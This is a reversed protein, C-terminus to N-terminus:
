QAYGVAFADYAADGGRADARLPDGDALRRGNAANADVRAATENREVAGRFSDELSSVAEEDIGSARAVGALVMMVDEARATIETELFHLERELPDQPIVLGILRQRREWDARQAPNQVTIGELLCLRILANVFAVGRTWLKQQYAAWAARDADTELTTENHPHTETAGTATQVTYTPPQPVPFQQMLKQFLVPISKFTVIYGRSTTYQDSSM